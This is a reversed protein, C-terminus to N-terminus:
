QQQCPLKNRFKIVREFTHRRHQHRDQASDPNNDRDCGPQPFLRTRFNPSPVSRRITRRRKKARKTAIVSRQIENSRQRQVNVRASSISAGEGVGVAAGDALAVRGGVSEPLNSTERSKLPMVTRLSTSVATPAAADSSRTSGIL